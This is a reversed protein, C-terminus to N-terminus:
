CSPSDLASEALTYVLPPIIHLSEILFPFSSFPRRPHAHRCSDDSIRPRLHTVQVPVSLHLVCRGYLGPLQVCWSQHIFPYKSPFLCHHSTPEPPRPALTCDIDKPNPDLETVLPANNAPYPYFNPMTHRSRWSIPTAATTRTASKKTATKEYWRHRVGTAAM